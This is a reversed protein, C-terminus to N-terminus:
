LTDRARRAGAEGALRLARTLECDPDWCWCVWHDAEDDPAPGRGDVTVGFPLHVPLGGEDMENFVTM